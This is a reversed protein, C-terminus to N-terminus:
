GSMAGLFSAGEALLDEKTRERREGPYLPALLGATWSEREDAPVREITWKYVFNFFRHPPVRM